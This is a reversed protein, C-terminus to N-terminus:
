ITAVTTAINTATLRASLMFGVLLSNIALTDNTTIVPMEMILKHILLSCTESCLYLTKLIVLLCLVKLHLNTHFRKITHLEIPM